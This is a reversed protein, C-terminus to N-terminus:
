SPTTSGAAAPDLARGIAALTPYAQAYQRRRGTFWAATAPNPGTAVELQVHEGAAARDPWIGTAVGALIAAGRATSHGPVPTLHIGAADARASVARSHRTGGGVVRIAAPIAQYLRLVELTKAVEFGSSELIALLLDEATTSLSIGLFAATSSPDNEVTGSGLFHPLCLTTAPTMPVRDLLEDLSQRHLDALWLLASGGSPIGCLSLWINSDDVPYCAYNQEILDAPRGTLSTTLCETTGVSLVPHGPQDLGAGWYACAQDHAGTVLIPAGVFGLRTAADAGVAGIPTGVPVAPPLMWEQCGAAALLEGDWRRTRTNFAQTRSANTYDFVLSAGLQHLLFGAIDVIRDVSPWFQGQRQWAAITAISFMPHVPQGTRDRISEAGVEEAMRAIDAEGRRDPSLTMPGLPNGRADLAITTEGMVGVSVATVPDAHLRSNVERICAFVADVVAVADLEYIGPRPTSPQYSRTAASLEALSESFAAVRCGSTGVDIGM